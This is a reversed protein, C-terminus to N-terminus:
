LPVATTSKVEAVAVYSHVERINDVHSLKEFFFTEYAHIDRTVVRLLYDFVGLVAHCELVEPFEQIKRSFNALSAQDNKDMKVQVFLQAKLGLKDRNLLAVIRAIYGQEKLQQIRRWCPSQSLGVAEAIEAASRSADEQLAALIKRDIKDIGAVM